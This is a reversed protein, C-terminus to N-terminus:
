LKETEIRYVPHQKDTVEICSRKVSEFVADWTAESNIGEKQLIELFTRTFISGIPKTCADDEYLVYSREEPAAASVLVLSKSHELFLRKFGTYPAKFLLPARRKAIVREGLASEEGNCCDFVILSLKYRYKRLFRIVSMGALLGRDGLHMVPWKKHKADRVGHGTYYFVVLDEQRNPLKVFWDKIASVTVREGKLVNQKLHYGISQAIGQFTGELRRLDLNVGSGIIKDATDAVILVHMSPAAHLATACIICFISLWKM